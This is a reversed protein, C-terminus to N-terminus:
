KENYGRYKMSKQAFSCNGELIESRTQSPTEDCIKMQANAEDPHEIYYDLDHAELVVTSERVEDRVIDKTPQETSDCSALLLLLSGSLLRIM